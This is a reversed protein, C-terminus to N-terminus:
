VLEVPHYCGDVGPACLECNGMRWEAFLYVYEYFLIPILLMYATVLYSEYCIVAYM